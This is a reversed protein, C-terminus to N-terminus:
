SVGRMKQTMRDLCQGLMFFAQKALMWDPSNYPPSCNSLSAATEVVNDSQEKTLGRERAASMLLANEVLRGNINGAASEVGVLKSYHGSQRFLDNLTM